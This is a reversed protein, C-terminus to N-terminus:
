ALARELYASRRADSLRLVEDEPWGYARALVHVEDLLRRARTDIEEWLYGAVDFPASWAHACAPCELDVAFDICPDAEELARTL